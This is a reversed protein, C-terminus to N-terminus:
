AHCVIMQHDGASWANEFIDLPVMEGCGNITGSDNLVVMPNDPHSHDIGIVQLAHDATTTPSFIDNDEGYWIQGSDVSVILKNGSNLESELHEMDTDFYVDHDINYYTLMKDMNLTATGGEETFWGHEIADNVFQDVDIHEGTLQEIAFMQTYLSCRNTNDQYQWVEMDQAPTGSVLHEPTNPDFCGNADASGVSTHLDFLSTDEYGAPIVDEFHYDSQHDHDFDFDAEVRYQIDPNTNDAHRSATMEYEGDQDLDMYFKMHDPEGNQSYDDAIFFTEVFGDEDLDLMGQYYDPTGNHDSDVAVVWGTEGTPDALSIITDVEGSGTSDLEIIGESDPFLFDSFDIDM